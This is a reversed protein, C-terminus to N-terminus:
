RAWGFGALSEGRGGKSLPLPRGNLPLQSSVSPCFKRGRPRSIGVRSILLVHSSKERWTYWCSCSITKESVTALQIAGLRISDFRIVSSGGHRNAFSQNAVSSILSPFSLPSPPPFSCFFLSLATSNNPSPFVAIPRPIFVPSDPFLQVPVAAYVKPEITGLRASLTRRSEQVVIRSSVHCWIKEGKEVCTERSIAFNEYTSSEHPRAATPFLSPTPIWGRPIGFISGGRVM